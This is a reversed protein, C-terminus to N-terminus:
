LTNLDPGLLRLWHKCLSENVLVSVLELVECSCNVLFCIACVSVVVFKSKLVMLCM